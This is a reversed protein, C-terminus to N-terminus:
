SGGAPRRAARARPRSGGGARSCGTSLSLPGRMDTVSGRMGRVSGASGGGGRGGLPRRRAEAVRQEGGAHERHERDEEDPLGIRVVVRVVREDPALLQAVAVQGVVVDEARRRRMRERREHRPRQRREPRRAVPDEHERRQEPQEAEVGDDVQERLPQEAPQDRQDREGHHDRARVHLQERQPRHEVQREVQHHEARRQQLQAPRAAAPGHERQEREGPQQPRLRPQQRADVPEVERRGRRARLEDAVRQEDGGRRHDPHRAVQDHGALREVRERRRALDGALEPAVAPQELRDRQDRLVRAAVVADDGHPDAPEPQQEADVDQAAPGRQREREAASPSSVNRIM